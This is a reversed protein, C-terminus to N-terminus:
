PRPHWVHLTLASGRRAQAAPGDPVAVGKPSGPHPALWDSLALVGNLLEAGASGVVFGVDPESGPESPFCDRRALGEGSRRIGIAEDYRARSVPDALV